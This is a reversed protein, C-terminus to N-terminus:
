ALATPTIMKVLVEFCNCRRPKNFARLDTRESKPLDVHGKLDVRTDVGAGGGGTLDTTSVLSYSIGMPVGSRISTIGSIQWGDGVAKAFQNKWLRSLAPLTYLYNIAVVHTRDTSTKGYNWQEYGTFPNATGSTYDMAKSWTWTLGLMLNNQFRRKVATQLSHYNTTSSMEYYTIDGYGPVPRLFNLPLPTNGTTPDISSAQFNTGYPVANLSRSQALHRGLSGVYSVDLVSHFGIDRQIGFSMNYTTPDDHKHQVARVNTPSVSAPATLLAGISTYYLTVTQLMPPQTAFASTTADDGIKGPFIGFGTRVAMKGDGFVDWALGFRPAATLAPGSMIREWVPQMGSFFVGSGPALTGILIAPVVEGTAPNRGVRASAATAKYPQILKAAKAADYQSQEFSALYTGANKSTSIHYFRVGADLTLRKSLRWSDQAFWEVHFYRAHEALKTNAESYSTLTGLAANSYAYNTDLPNNSDRTFTATGMLPGGAAAANRATNEYYIGAKFNHRGYVKTLNDSISKSTNTGYFIWRTEWAIGPASQVDGFTANPIVNLPNLEPHFQPFNIGLTARNVRALSGTDPVFPNQTYRTVGATIENVLTPDFTHIATFAIGSSPYNYAGTILPFRNSVPFSNFWNTTSRRDTNYLGRAYFTTKGLNWDVRLVEFRHPEQQTGQIVTNFTNTPDNAGPQPFVSLLGIGAKDLRSAPIINDPFQTKNNLPDRVPIM